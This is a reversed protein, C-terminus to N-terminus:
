RSAALPTGADVTASLKPSRRMRAHSYRSWALLNASDWVLAIDRRRSGEDAALLSRVRSLDLLEGIPGPDAALDNIWAQLPGTLWRQQPPVFGQKPRTVIAEPVLGRLALRLVRKVQGEGVLLDPPLSFLYEALRPDCFPLRVERSHAMSLRDGFRLLGSLMARFSLQWLMRSLAHQDSPDAPLAPLPSGKAASALWSPQFLDPLTTTARDTARRLLPRLRALPTENLALRPWTFLVPYSRAWARREHLWAGIRREAGLQHLFAQIIQGGYGGLQEDSGQGDLLVTVGKTKALHFVCWQAFQSMGGIPYDAHHYVSEADRLFREATPEVESSTTNCAEVMLDSYRGEDMPDGPFRGTFTHLDAGPELRRILAVIASSDLGGSLCSGVPVDSRLRLRVSDTLLDLFRRSAEKGSESGYPRRAAIDATWYCFTRLIEVRGGAVRVEMAHGPLLQKVGRLLTREHADLWVMGEAVGVALVGEDIDLDVFSLLALAKVESAFAFTGQTFAYHFPKEGFRDRACFLVRRRGDWLAFAFMGNLESLCATGWEAYAALLVETDSTSRFRHGRAALRARVEIYNYIEGNFTISLDRAEDRMPQHGGESLDVISLRRHGLAVAGDPSVWAGEGDPGRHRQAENMARVAALNAHGAAVIGAIGCM